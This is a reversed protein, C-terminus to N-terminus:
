RSTSTTAYWPRSTPIPLCRSTRLRYRRSRNNGLSTPVRRNQETLRPFRVRKGLV